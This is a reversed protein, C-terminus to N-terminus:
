MEVRTELTSLHEKESKVGLLVMQQHGHLLVPSGVVLVPPLPSPLMQQSVPITLRLQYLVVEMVNFRALILEEVFMRQTVRLIGGREKQHLLAVAEVANSQAVKIAVLIIVM